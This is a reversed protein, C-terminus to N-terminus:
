YRIAMSIHNGGAITKYKYNNVKTPLLTPPSKERGLEGNYNSGWLWLSGDHLIGITHWKGQQIQKWTSSGIQTPILRDTTDGQGLQGDDNHGWQWLTDDHLIGITHWGGTTIQKWTSSGIQTPTLRNTTDGLGLQGHDNLGFSYLYGDSNIALSHYYGAAVAIWTDTGVKTPSSRNSTDGLGLQGDSNYGFTYLYGDSNIALSHYFAAVAIWTDTGVKTPTSHPDEDSTGQGLQGFNNRGWQWLTDDHLIGITHWGGTTIQKWTSSGIQTPTLRDVTDGLGLGGQYNRGWGFLFDDDTLAITHNYYTQLTKFTEADNVVFSWEDVTTGLGLQGYENYGTVYLLNPQFTVGELKDLFQQTFQIITEDPIDTLGSENSIYISNLKVDRIDLNNGTIIIDRLGTIDIESLKIFDQYVSQQGTKQINLFNVINNKFSKSYTCPIYWRYLYLYNNNKSLIYLTTVNNEKNNEVEQFQDQNFLIQGKLTQGEYPVLNLGMYLDDSLVDLELTSHLTKDIYLYSILIDDIDKDRDQVAYSFNLEEDPQISFEITTDTTKIPYYQKNTKLNFISEVGLLTINENPCTWQYVFKEVNSFTTDNQVSKYQQSTTGYQIFKVPTQGLYANYPFYQLLEQYKMFIDNQIEDKTNAFSSYIPM